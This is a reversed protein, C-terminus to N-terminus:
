ERYHEGLKTSILHLTSGKKPVDRKLPSWRPSVEGLGLFSPMWTLRRNLGEAWLVGMLPVSKWARFTDAPPEVTNSHFHMITVKTTMNQNFQRLPSNTASTKDDKYCPHVLSPQAQLHFLDEVSQWSLISTLETLYSISSYSVSYVHRPYSKSLSTKKNKTQFLGLIKLAKCWWLM